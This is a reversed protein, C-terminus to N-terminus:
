RARRMLEIVLARAADEIYELPRARCFNSIWDVLADADPQKLFDPENPEAANMASVFGLIWANQQSATVTKTQHEMTWKSCYQTGAGILYKASAPVVTAILLASALARCREATLRPKRPM